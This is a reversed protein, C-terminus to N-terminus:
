GASSVWKKGRFLFVLSVIVTIYSVIESLRWWVPEKWFVHLIGVYDAPLLVGVTRNGGEHIEFEKSPDQMDQAHYYKYAFLPFQVWGYEPGTACAVLFDNNKREVLQLDIMGESVIGTEVGDVYTHELLYDMAYHTWEGLDETTVYTARMDYLANYKSIQACNFISVACILVTVVATAARRLVTHADSFCEYFGNMLDSAVISMIVIEFPLYRMPFEIATIIKGLPISTEIYNWPFTLMTMALIVLSVATGYVIRKYTSFRVKKVILAVVCYVIAIILATMLVAGPSRQITGSRTKYPNCVYDFLDRVHLGSGQINNKEEIAAIGGTLFYDMFPVIFYLSMLVALLGGAATEALRRIRQGKKAFVFLAFPWFVALVFLMMSTTLTHSAIVATFSFALLIVARVRKKADEETLILYLCATVAPLFVIALYEGMAARVYVDVLRYAATTYIVTTLVANWGKNFVKFSLYSIVVTMANVLLLFVRYAAMVNLGMKRFAAAFYLFFDGYFISVPFGYGEIWPTQIRVPINGWHIDSVLGEIRHLHFRLDHGKAMEMFLAPYSIVVTLIILAIVRWKRESWDIKKM